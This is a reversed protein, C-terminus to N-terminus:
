FYAVKTVCHEVPYFKRGEEVERELIYVEGNEIKM